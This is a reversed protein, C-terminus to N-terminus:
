ATKSEASQPSTRAKLILNVAEAPVDWHPFHGCHEFWHLHADPFLAIARSAQRPLCVRDQRGWGITLPQAMSGAPAGQQAVGYALAHLLEDFVPSTTYSLIEPLVVSPSLQSPHASFQSLLATRGVASAALHPLTPRLRRLLGISARLSVFFMHREWGQWFGGPNLAVVRGLVGRRALELVLRAGMSSGVADVGLLQNEQLFTIVADALAPITTPSALRPTAGHGPLDVAVVSREQTLPELIPQWSRWNGGLGHLLLLPRGHGLRVHHMTM